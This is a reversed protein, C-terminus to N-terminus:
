VQTSNTLKPHLAAKSELWTKLGGYIAVFAADTMAEALSPFGASEGWAEGFQISIEELRQLGKDHAELSFWVGLVLRGSGAQRDFEFRIIRVFAGEIPAEPKFPNPYEPVVLAM